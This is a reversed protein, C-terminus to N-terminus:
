TQGTTSSSVVGPDGGAAGHGPLVIANALTSNGGAQLHGDHGGNGQKGYPGAFATMVVHKEGNANVLEVTTPRGNGGRSGAAQGGGGGSGSAHVSVTAPWSHPTFVGCSAPNTHGWLTANAASKLANVEARLSALSDSLSTFLEKINLGDVLM